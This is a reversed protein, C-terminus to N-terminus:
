EQQETEMQENEEVQMVVDIGYRETPRRKRPERDTAPTWEVSAKITKKKETEKDAVKEKSNDTKKPTDM